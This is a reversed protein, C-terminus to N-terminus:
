PGQKSMACLGSFLIRRSHVPAGTCRSCVTLPDSTAVARGGEWGMNVLMKSGVSDKAVPTRLGIERAGAATWSAKANIVNDRANGRPKGKKVESARM